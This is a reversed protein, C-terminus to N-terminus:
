ERIHGTSGGSVPPSWQPLLGLNQFINFPFHHERRRIAPEM